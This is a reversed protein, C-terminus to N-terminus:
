SPIAETIAGALRTVIQDLQADTVVFPPGLLVVDGATGDACGTSPYVLLGRAKAAAAVREVIRASRAFPQKTNRDAVLEIGAFPGRGRVDGVAELPAVREALLRHLKDGAAAGQEVLGGDRLRALVALAVRAGIPHHSWTFGHVFGAPSSQVVDHLEGSAITLGLPWAGNSAGKGAVLIDPRVDWHDCAFWTGTRGFGTMVEDAILLVGHARCVEVIAPWYDDPPVAAGLAAGAIPEAVFAAVRSAGLDDITADLQQALQAGTAAERYPYAPAVHTTKGLWPLYPARLPDRGSVDLAGRSNGHYSRRRALVMHRGPQGNAVHYARALKLATEIAESGGSVPYVRADDVPVVAALETAYQELAASTFQTAHVYDLAAPDSAADRLAALVAPDRHGVNVVIAGGCGDLYRRGAADVIECGEADVAVPLDIGREFVSSM